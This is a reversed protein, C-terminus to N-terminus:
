LREDLPEGDVIVDARVLREDSVRIESVDGVLVRVLLVLPSVLELGLPVDNAIVSSVSAALSGVVGPPV